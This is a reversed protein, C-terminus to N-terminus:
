LAQTRALAGGRAATFAAALVSARRAAGEAQPQSKAQPLAQTSRRERRQQTDEKQMHPPTTDVQQEHAEEHSGEREAQATCTNQALTRALADLEDLTSKSNACPGATDTQTAACAGANNDKDLDRIADPCAALLANLTNGEHTTQTHKLLTMKGYGGSSAAAFDIKISGAFTHSNAAAVGIGANSVAAYAFLVCKDNADSSEDGLNAITEGGGPGGTHTAIQEDTTAVLLGHLANLKGQQAAIWRPAAASQGFVAACLSKLTRHINASDSATFAGGGGQLCTKKSSAGGALAGLMHIYEHLRGHTYSAGKLASVLASHDEELQARRRELSGALAQATRAPEALTDNLQAMNAAEQLQKATVAASAAGALVNAMAKGVETLLAESLAQLERWAGGYGCLKGRVNANLGDPTTGAQAQLCPLTLVATLAATGVGRFM